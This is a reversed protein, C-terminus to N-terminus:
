RTAGSRRPALEQARLCVGDQGAVQEVEVGDGQVPQIREEDDLVGGAAHVDEADGGVGGAGPQGLLGAVQEHGEVVGPVLEPEEDPVAVGLEGGRKVGDEGRDADADDFCWHPCRPGVGDALRKTPLM